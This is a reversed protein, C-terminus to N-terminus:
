RQMLGQLGASDLQHLLVSLSHASHLDQASDLADKLVERIDEAEVREMDWNPFLRERVEESESLVVLHEHRPDAKIMEMLRLVEWRPGELWQFFLGSGFVLLGTISHAPNNKHSATMIRAVAAEDVDASARSCYSTQYLLPLRRALGDDDSGGSRLRSAGLPEDSPTEQRPNTGGPRAAGSDTPKM